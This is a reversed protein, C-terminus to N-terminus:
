TQTRRNGYPDLLHVTGDPFTVEKNGDPFHKEVQGNSFEILQTGDGFTTQTTGSQTFHYITTGEPNTQKTDGNPFLILTRGDPYIKKKAGNKFTIEEPESSNSLQTETKSQPKSKKKEFNTKIHEQMIQKICSELESNQTNCSELEKKLNDLNTKHKNEKLKAAELLSQLQTKLEEIETHQKKAPASSKANKEIEAKEKKLLKFQQEKWEQLDNMEQNKVSQYNQLKNELEKKKAEVERLIGRVKLTESKFREIESNLEEIKPSVVEDEVKFDELANPDYSITDEPEPSKPKYSNKPKESSKPKNKIRVQKSKPKVQPPKAPPEQPKEPKEPKPNTKPEIKHTKPKAQTKSFTTKPSNEPKTEEESNTKQVCLKGSGRKLFPKKPKSDLNTETRKQIKQTKAESFDIVDYQKDSPRQSNMANKGSNKKLFQKKQTTRQQTLPQEESRMKEELLEEFTKTTGAVPKEEIANAEEPSDYNPEPLPSYALVEDGSDCYRTATNEEFSFEQKEFNQLYQAHMQLAKEPNEMMAQMLEMMQPTFQAM